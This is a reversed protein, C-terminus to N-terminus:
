SNDATSLGPTALSRSWLVYRKMIININNFLYMNNYSSSDIFFIFFLFIILYIFLIIELVHPM